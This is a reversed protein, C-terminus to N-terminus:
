NPGEKNKTKFTYKVSITRSTPSCTVDLINEVTESEFNASILDVKKGSDSSNMKFLFTEGWIIYDEGTSGTSPM